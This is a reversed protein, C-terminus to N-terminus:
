NAELSLNVDEPNEGHLLTIIVQVRKYARAYNQKAYDYLAAVREEDYADNTSADRYNKVAETMYEGAEDALNELRDFEEPFDLTAFQQFRKDLKDLCSLVEAIANESAPDVQNMATDIESIDSCFADIDLKFQTLKPDRGCATLMASLFLAAAAFKIRLNM